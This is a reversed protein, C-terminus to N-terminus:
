FRAMFVVDMSVSAAWCPVPRADKGQAVDEATVDPVAGTEPAIRFTLVNSAERLTAEEDNDAGIPLADLMRMLDRQLATRDRRYLDLHARFHYCRPRFTAGEGAQLHGIDFVNCDPDGPNTARYTRRGGFLRSVCEACAKEAETLADIFDCERM